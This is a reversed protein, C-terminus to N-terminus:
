IKALESEDIQIPYKKIANSIFESFSIAKKREIIWQHLKAKVEEFAVIKTAMTKEFKLIHFGKPSPSEILYSYVEGESLTKVAQNMKDTISKKDLYRMDGGFNATKKEESHEKALLSFNKPDMMAQNLIELAKSKNTIFIHSSLEGQTQVFRNPNKNYFEKMELETVRVSNFISDRKSQIMLIEKYDNTKVQTKQVVITSFDEPHKFLAIFILDLQLNLLSNEEPSNIIPALFAPPLIEKAIQLSSPNIIKNDITYTNNQKNVSHKFRIPNSTKQLFNRIRSHTLHKQIFPLVEQISTYFKQQDKTKKLIFFSNNHRLVPSLEGVQLLSLSQIFAYAISSDVRENFINKQLISQDFLKINSIKMLDKRNNSQITIFSYKEGKEYLSLNKRYYNEVDTPTISKVNNRILESLFARKKFHRLQEIFNDSKQIEERKCVEIVAYHKHLETILKKKLDIKPTNKNEPKQQFSQLKKKFTTKNIISFGVKLISNNSIPSLTQQNKVLDIKSNLKIKDMVLEHIQFNIEKQVLEPLKNEIQSIISDKDKISLVQSSSPLFPLNFIQSLQIIFLILILTFILSNNNQKM